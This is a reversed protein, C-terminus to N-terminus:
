TWLGARVDIALKLMQTTEDELKKELGLLRDFLQNSRQKEGETMKKQVSHFSAFDEKDEQFSSNFDHWQNRASDIQGVRYKYDKWWEYIKRINQDNEYQETLIRIVEDKTEYNDENLRRIEEEFEQKTFVRMENEVFNEILSMIAYM